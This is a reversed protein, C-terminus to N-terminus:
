DDRVGQLRIILRTFALVSGLVAGIAILLSGTNFKQDAWHGIFLFVLITVVLETVAVMIEGYNKIM